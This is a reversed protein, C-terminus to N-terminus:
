GATAGGCARLFRTRGTVLASIMLTWVVASAVFGVWLVSEVVAPTLTPGGAGQTVVADRVQALAGPM